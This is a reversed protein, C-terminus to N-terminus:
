RILQALYITRSLSLFPALMLLPTCALTPPFLLWLKSSLSVGRRGTEGVMFPTIYHYGEELKISNDVTMCRVNRLRCGTEELTERRATQEWTEGAEVHGGPLAFTGSGDSGQRRGLLICGPHQNSLVFVGVGVGPRRPRPSSCAM